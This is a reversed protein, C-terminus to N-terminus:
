LPIDELSLYTKKPINRLYPHGKSLHPCGDFLSLGLKRIRFRGKNPIDRLQPDRIYPCKGWPPSFNHGEHPHHRAPRDSKPREPSTVYTKVHTSKLSSTLNARRLSARGPDFSGHKTRVSIRMSIRIVMSEERMLIDSKVKGM